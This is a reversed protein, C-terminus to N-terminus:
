ASADQEQLAAEESATLAALHELSEALRRQEGTPLKLLAGYLADHMPSPARAILRQGADTITVYVLRRDQDDRKRTVLHKSELRDLIGVVTSASLHVRRGIATATTPEHAAVDILCVLQPGTIEYETSLKRSHTDVARILQRLALLIRQDFSPKGEASRRRKATRHKRNM